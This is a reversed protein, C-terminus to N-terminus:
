YGISDSAIPSAGVNSTANDLRGNRNPRDRSKTRGVVAISNQDGGFIPVPTNPTRMRESSTTPTILAAIMLITGALIAWLFILLFGEAPGSQM